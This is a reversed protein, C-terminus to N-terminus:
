EEETEMEEGSAEDDEEEEVDEDESEDEGEDGVPKLGYDDQFSALSRVEPAFGAEKFNKVLGEEMITACTCVMNASDPTLVPLVVEKMIAQLDATTVDQADRLIKQGWDKPIGKIVQNILGVMGSSIATPQEDAFRVAISSVAGQLAHKEFPRAGTAFDEVVQRAAKYAKFVDPSRYISFEILGTDTSRSFNTGYALGTGRVASWMPGEVADLYALAVLLTPQRPNDYGEIGRATFLAFSSDITPMPVIYALKGPNRVADSLVAKRTDLPRLPAVPELAAVLPKWASVPCQVKKLDAIVGVRINSATLFSSRFKELMAIVTQPESELLKSIRKLYLAKVLTNGVRSTAEPAYSIMNDVSNMMENGSRKEDPIDALLKSLTPKLREADFIAGFLLDRVWKIAVEYKDIETVFRIRLLEANGLSSGLEMTHDVTDRDLEVTAQEFEIRKGDRMIPTTFFNAVYVPILPRIDIPIVSTSFILNFSIFNTKVHEFHLFLPVDADQDVLRQWENDLKPTALGARVTTSPIFHISKTSPVPFGDLIEEPIPKDNEAKAAELKRTLEKLGEQGFREKQAKVRATEEAKLKASLKASPVGLISVHKNNVFYKSMFVRWQEDTWAMLKDYDALSAYAEYLESGDRSFFLHDEIIADYLPASATEMHYMIQLRTRRICDHMYSMDLPADATTRLVEFFRDHVEQLEKTAVSYLLFTVLTKPRTETYSSVASCLEEKEVLTNELVSVSSYTLYVIIISMALDELQDHCDPGVFTISIEGSSEDEEPFEVKQIISEKLPPAPTSEVWPRQFPADLPPVDDAISEEFKNLISLLQAHDVEGVIVLCLNKPQYMEKHFERIRDATLVRLAEMMGGTEYRFGVGEPYLLRKAELNMLEEMTNQVGQMESYVVGADNGEGDIHHVETYCGSDTLTPVLVHELYVPLIQAFGEWGATDLTYATHDTATWANTNSYARTALKDLVGKYKYSKSGMFCLHELTHPAGSDDHIETALAFYGSVKPSQNDVVFVRMGTRESEYQTLYVVAWDVDFSQIKKFPM